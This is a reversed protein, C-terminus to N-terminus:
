RPRAIAAGVLDAIAQQGKDNPHIGDTSYLGTGATTAAPMTDLLSILGVTPEDAVLDEIEREYARLRDAGAEEPAIQYPFVWYISPVKPLSQLMDVLQQAQRRFVSPDTAQLADNGGLEVTVLDPGLAAVTSRWDELDALFPTAVTASSWGGDVTTIGSDEGGRYTLLGALPFAETATITLRHAGPPLAVRTRSFPAYSGTDADVSVAARDDLRYRFAGGGPGGVWCIDVSSGTVDFTVSAGAALELAKHGLDAYGYGADASGDRLTLTGTSAVYRDAWPSDPGYVRQRAPVYDGTGGGSYNSRLTGTVLSFWRRQPRSAGQGEALSEGISYWVAPSTARAALAAEWRATVKAASRPAAPPDGGSCAPLAALLLALAASAAATRWRRGRSGRPRRGHNEHRM